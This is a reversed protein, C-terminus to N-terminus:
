GSKVKKAEEEKVLVHFIKYGIENGEKDRLSGLYHSSEIVYGQSLYNYNLDEEAKSAPIVDESKSADGFTRLFYKVSQM